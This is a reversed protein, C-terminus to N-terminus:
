YIKGSRREKVTQNKRETDLRYRGAKGVIRDTVRGGVTALACGPCVASLQGGEIAIGKGVVCSPPSGSLVAKSESIVTVAIQYFLAVSQLEQIVM